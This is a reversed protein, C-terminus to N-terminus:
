IRAQHEIYVVGLSRLLKRYLWCEENDLAASGVSAIAATRNVVQGAANREEFTSDRTAKISAAIQRAAWDWSKREFERAGYCRGALTTAASAFGLASFLVMTDLRTTVGLAVIADQGGLDGAIRTLAIVTM